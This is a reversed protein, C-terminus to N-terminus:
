IRTERRWTRKWVWVCPASLAYAVFGAALMAQFHVLLLLVGIVARAVYGIPAHGRLYRNTLHAYRLRSVMGFAAALTIALMGVSSVQVITPADRFHNHAAFAVESTPMYTGLFYQHLMVLSAVTGAAGPTPLGEFSMHDVTDDSETEINFRALRLAACAVYICASVLALRGCLAWLPDPDDTLLPVANLQMLQVVLFAPAVGFTVMDAMSDLQAGLNSAHKTLRALQGDLGDFIMGFFIFLSALVFLRYAPQSPDPPRSVLFVAIFGCLLNGLTCLTPLVAVTAHMARRAPRDRTQDPADALEDPASEPPDSQYPSTGPPM